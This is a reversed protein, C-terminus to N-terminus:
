ICGLSRAAHDSEQQWRDPRMGRSGEAKDKASQDGRSAESASKSKGIEVGKDRGLGEAKGGGKANLKFVTKKSFCSRIIKNLHGSNDRMADQKNEEM